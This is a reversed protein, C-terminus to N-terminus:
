AIGYRTAAFRGVNPYFVNAFIEEEDMFTLRAKPETMSAPIVSYGSRFNPPADTQGAMSYAGRHGLMEDGIVRIDDGNNAKRGHPVRDKRKAAVRTTFVDPLETVHADIDIVRHRELPPVAM